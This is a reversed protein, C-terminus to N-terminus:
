IAISFFENIAEIYQCGYQNTSRMKFAAGNVVKQIKQQIIVCPYDLNKSASLQQNVSLLGLTTKIANLAPANKRMNYWEMFSDTQEAIIQKAKPIEGKRKSLTEDNLKSLTDVNILQINVLKQASEEVNYPISLDIILKNGANKLHSTLIVPEPSNSAVLIIDSSCIEDELQNLPAHKLGLEEALEKAKEVSRNILTINNTKLYDVLNKCTNRGIKGTGVLLIKVDANIIVHSKIYQIASFSVSVTGGSLTTQNKIVKSSQLVYNFLRELFCNIFGREKSFKVAQKLQSIIEYDGLIQSDLGAGVNFLHEIACTGNKIYCLEKFTEKSGKTETCLLDILHEPNTAFGYIETRNCTSLIFMSNVQRSNALQLIRSNSENNVAYQGRINAESKKYNIGIAYFQSIDIPNILHQM